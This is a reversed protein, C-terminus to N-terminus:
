EISGVLVMLLTDRYRMTSHMSIGNKRRTAEVLVEEGRRMFSM